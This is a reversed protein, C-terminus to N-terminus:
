RGGIHQLARFVATKSMGFRSAIGRMTLGSERLTVLELLDIKKRAWVVSVAATVTPPKLENTGPCGGGSKLSDFDNLLIPWGFPSM